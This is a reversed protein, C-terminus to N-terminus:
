IVRDCCKTFNKWACYVEEKGHGKSWSIPTSKGSILCFKVSFDPLVRMEGKAKCICFDNNYCPNIYTRIRIEQNGVDLYWAVSKGSKDVEKRGGIEDIQAVAGQFLEHIQDKGDPSTYPLIKLGCKHSIAFKVIESLEQSTGKDLVFNLAYEVGTRSLAELNNRVLKFNKYGTVKSYIEPRLSPININIKVHLKKLYAILDDTLLSANTACGLRCSPYTKHVWEIMKITDPNSFPEGGSFWIKKISPTYIENLFQKFDDVKMVQANKTIQGENHCYQCMYNCHDTTLIRLATIDTM